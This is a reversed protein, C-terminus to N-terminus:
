RPGVSSSSGGTGCLSLAAASRTLWAHLDVLVEHSGMGGQAAASPVSASAKSVEAVPPTQADRLLSM